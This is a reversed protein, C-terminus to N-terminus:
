NPYSTIIYYQGSLIKGNIVWFSRFNSFFPQFDSFITTFSSSRSRNLEYEPNLDLNPHSSILYYQRLSIKGNIVWFSRCNSFFLQFNSSIATFSSSKSRNLKYEPDLDLNPHSSISYYQRLSIKGNVVWFSRFNSFFPQFDSLIAM